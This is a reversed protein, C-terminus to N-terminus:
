SLIAQSAKRTHGSTPESGRAMSKEQNGYETGADKENRVAWKSSLYTNTCPIRFYYAPLKLANQTERESHPNALTSRNQHAMGRLLM